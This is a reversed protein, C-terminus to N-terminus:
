VGRIRTSGNQPLQRNFGRRRPGEDPQGGAHVLVDACASVCGCAQPLRNWDSRRAVQTTVKQLHEYNDVAATHLPPSGQM